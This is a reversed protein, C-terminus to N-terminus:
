FNSQTRCSRSIEKASAIASTELDERTSKPDVTAWYDAVDNFFVPAPIVHGAEAVGGITTANARRILLENEASISM